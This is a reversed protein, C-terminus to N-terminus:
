ALAVALATLAMEGLAQDRADHQDARPGTMPQTSGSPAAVPDMAEIAADVAPASFEPQQRPMAVPQSTQRPIGAPRAPRRAAAPRGLENSGRSRAPARRTRPRGPTPRPLEAKVTRGRGTAPRSTRERAPDRALGSAAAWGRACSRGPRRWGRPWG